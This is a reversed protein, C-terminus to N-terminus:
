RSRTMETWTVSSNPYGSQKMGVCGDWFVPTERKVRLRGSTAPTSSRQGCPGASPAAPAHAAATARRPYGM